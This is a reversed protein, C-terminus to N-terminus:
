IQTPTNEYPGEIQKQPAGATLKWAIQLGVFLIVLGIVGHLPDQLELFPSALGLLALSALAAGLGQRGAPQSQPSQSESPPSAAAQREPSSSAARQESQVPGAKKEKMYQSIGIPIAAMSVAAYTLLIATLQYKRGGFGKSGAMMAKGVMYGVALSVYGIMLGTIIGFAAYLILGAIAAGIGFMVARPYASGVEKPLTFRAKDACAPCTMAGNLRYYNRGIAQGCSKCQDTGPKDAYEATSFQPTAGTSDQM